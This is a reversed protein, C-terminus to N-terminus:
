FEKKRLLIIGSLSFLVIGIIGATLCKVMGNATGWATVSQQQNVIMGSTGFFNYPMWMAIRSIVDFRLGLYFFVEPIIFWIVSWIIVGTFDKEFVEICVIGSILSAVAIFFVAPIEALLDMLSVPGTQSLFIVASVIYVALVIISAFIASVTAVICEGFFIKVRPIGFAITNKLNGSRRNGEYLVVGIVASIICFIMPNAVLNSYSFSTTNYRFSSGDMKGFWALTANLMFSLTALIGTLFYIGRNHLVRYFESKIYNMM